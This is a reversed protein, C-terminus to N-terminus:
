HSQPHVRSLVEAFSFPQMSWKWAAVMVWMTSFVGSLIFVNVRRRIQAPRPVYCNNKTCFCIKAWKQGESMTVQLHNWLRAWLTESVHSKIVGFRKDTPETQALKFINSSEKFGSHRWHIQYTQYSAKLGLFLLFFFFFIMSSSYFGFLFVGRCTPKM